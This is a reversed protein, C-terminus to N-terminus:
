LDTGSDNKLEAIREDLDLPFAISFEQTLLLFLGPQELAIEAFDKASAQDDASQPVYSAALMCCLYLTDDSARGAFDIRLRTINQSSPMIGKISPERFTMTVPEDGEQWDKVYRSIDVVLDDRRPREKLRAKIKLAM